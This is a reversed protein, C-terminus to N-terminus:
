TYRLFIFTHLFIYMRFIVVYFSYTGTAIFNLHTRNHRLDPHLDARGAMRKECAFLFENIGCTTYFFEFLPICFMKLILALCLDKNSATPKTVAGCNELNKFDVTITTM